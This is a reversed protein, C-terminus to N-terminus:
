SVLTMIGFQLSSKKKGHKEPGTSGRLPRRRDSHRCATASARCARTSLQRSSIGCGRSCLFMRDSPWWIDCALCPLLLCLVFIARSIEFTKGVQGAWGLVSASPQDALPCVDVSGVSFGDSGSFSPLANNVARSLTPESTPPAQLTRVVNPPQIDGIQRLQPNGEQSCADQTGGALNDQETAMPMVPWTFLALASNGARRIAPSGQPGVKLAECFAVTPVGGECSRHTRYVTCQDVCRSVACEFRFHFRFGFRSVGFGRFHEALPSLACRWRGSSGPLAAQQM